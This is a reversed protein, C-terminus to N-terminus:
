GTGSDPGVERLPNHCKLCMQESRVDYRSVSARLGDGHTSAGILIEPWVNQIAHRAANGDTDDVCSLVFRYRAKSESTQLAPLQGSRNMRTVFDQWKMVSTHVTLGRSELYRGVIEAKSRKHNLDESCALAYRNLNTIDDLTQPDITTVHGEIDPFAGFVLAAAQGVAGSGILYPDRLSIKGVVPDAPLQDWTERVAFDLLSFAISEILAGRGPTVKRYFKFVEGSALCAAFYPGLPNASTPMHPPASGPPGACANWGEGFVCLSRAAKNTPQTNGILIEFPASADTSHLMVPVGNAIIRTGCAEVLATLSTPRNGAFPWIRSHLPADELSVLVKSVLRDQRVLLNLVMFLTHQGAATAALGPGLVVLVSGGVSEAADCLAGSPDIRLHRDGLVTM